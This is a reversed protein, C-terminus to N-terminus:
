HSVVDVTAIELIDERSAVQSSDALRVLAPRREAISEFYPCVIRRAKVGVLHMGWQAQFEIGPRDGKDETLPFHEAIKAVQPLRHSVCGEAWDLFVCRDETVVINGPNFDLHGLTDPLGLEALLACAEKLGDALTALESRGLPAPTSKEQVAMLESMRALFPDIRGALQGIRLDKAQAELLEATM